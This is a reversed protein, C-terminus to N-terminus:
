NGKAKHNSFDGPAPVKVPTASSQIALVSSTATTSNAKPRQRPAISTETPGITDTIRYYFFIYNIGFISSIEPKSNM